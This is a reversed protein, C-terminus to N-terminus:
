IIFNCQGVGPNSCKRDKDASVRYYLHKQTLCIIQFFLYKNVKCIYHTLWIYIYLLHKVKKQSFIIVNLSHTWRLLLLCVCNHCIFRLLLYYQSHSM